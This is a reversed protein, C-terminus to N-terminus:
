RAAVTQDSTLRHLHGDRMLYARSDGVHAVAVRDPSLIAATCTSGMGREEPHQDAESLIAENAALLARQLSHAPSQRVDDRQDQLHHKISRAALQAAVDGAAAGGMGD